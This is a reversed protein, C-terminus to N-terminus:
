FGLTAEPTEQDEVTFHPHCVLIRSPDVGLAVLTSRVSNARERAMLRHADPPLAPKTETEEATQDLPTEIPQTTEKGAGPKWALLDDPTANACITLILVEKAEMIDAVKKLYALGDHTPKTEGPLFPVPDLYIRTAYEGVTQAVSIFTGYPQFLYKLYSVAGTSIAKLTAKRYIDGLGFDPSETNGEVPITLEITGNDDKLVSIATDLPIALDKFARSIKNPDNPSLDFQKITLNSTGSLMGKNIDIISDATLSGTKINYGSKLAVYPSFTSLDLNELRGKWTLWEKPAFPLLSGQGTLIEHRGGYAVISFPTPTQPTATNFEELWFENINLTRSFAPTISADSFSVFPAGSLEIRDVAFVIPSEDPSAEPAQSPKPQESEKSPAELAKKMRALNVMAGSTDRQLTVGCEKAKLKEITYHRAGPRLRIRTADLTGIKAFPGFLHINEARLHPSAITKIGQMALDFLELREIDALPLANKVLTANTLALTGKAIPSEEMTWDFTGTWALSDHRTDLHQSSASFEMEDAALRGKGQVGQLNDKGDSHAVIQGEWSLNVKTLAMGMEPLTAGLNKLGIKGTNGLIIVSSNLTEPRIEFRTDAWLHGKLNEMMPPLYPGLSSLDFANIKLDLSAFPSTEQNEKPLHADLVMALDLPKENMSGSINLHTKGGPPAKLSIENIHIRTKAGQDPTHTIIADTIAFTDIGVLKWPKKELSKEITEIFTEPEDPTPSEPAEPAPPDSKENESQPASTHSTEGGMLHLRLGDLTFEKLISEKRFFSVTDINVAFTKFSAATGDAMSFGFNEVRFHTGFLNLDVNDLRVEKAGIGKLFAVTGKQIGWPILACVGAVLLALISIILTPKKLGKLTM